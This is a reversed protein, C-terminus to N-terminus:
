GCNRKGMWIDIFGGRGVWQYNGFKSHSLWKGFHYWNLSSLGSSRSLPLKGGSPSFGRGRTAKREKKTPPNNTGLQNLVAQCLYYWIWKYLGGKEKKDYLREPPVDRCLKALV